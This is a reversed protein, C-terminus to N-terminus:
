DNFGNLYSYYGNGDFRFCDSTDVEMENQGGFLFVKGNLNVTSSHKRTGLIQSHHEIWKGPGNNNHFYNSTGNTRILMPQDNIFSLSGGEIATDANELEEYTM